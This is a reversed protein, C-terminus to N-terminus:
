LHTIKLGGKIFSSELVTHRHCKKYDRESCMVCVRKGWYVLEMVGNITKDYDINEGRGGLNKGKFIYTIYAKSLEDSLAKQNYQPCFRSKPFTRVDVLTDIENKQLIQLFESIARVSHGITFITNM